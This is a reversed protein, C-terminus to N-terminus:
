AASGVSEVAKAQALKDIRGNVYLSERFMLSRPGAAGMAWSSLAKASMPKAFLFGQLEHCGMSRLIDHQAETEVGEAVVKISLAQALKVVADVVARADKSTELDLVFSRDIKLEEPQLRRLQSLSSSGTGFDDISIPVGLARLKGFVTRTTEADDMAMSETIECTLLSPAIQHTKMAAAIRDVLEPERLQHVSLNIAVRMRLGEDCWARAQSCAQDILWYGLSSILGFREAIPIFVEPSVIGRQPHHWRMLAEAGTIEGSPAHVKPQFYLELQGKALAERLDKLLSMQAHSRGMLQSDFFAYTAGGQSKSARVAAEAHGVMTSLAGHEPYMAIGISCSIQMTLTDFVFPQDIATKVHVALDVADAKEPNSGLLVLFKDDRLRALSGPGPSLGRLRRAVERLVQDAQSVGHLENLHRFGDIDVVMLALRGDNDDCRRIAQAFAGDFMAANPLGTLKDRAPEGGSPLSGSAPRVQLRSGLHSIVLLLGLMAPVGVSSLAMLAEVPLVQGYTSVTHGAPDVAELLEGQAWWNGSGLALAAGWRLQTHRRPSYGAQRMRPNFLTASAIWAGSLAALVAFILRGVYWPADPLLGMSASAGAPVLLGAAAMAAGTAAAVVMSSVRTAALLVSGALTAAAVWSAMLGLPHYGLAFGTEGPEMMLVHAALAGSAWAAGAAGIWPLRVTGRQVLARQFLHLAVYAALVAITFALSNHALASIGSGHNTSDM